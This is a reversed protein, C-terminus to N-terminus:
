SPTLDSSAVLTVQQAQRQATQLYEIFPAKPPGMIVIKSTDDQFHLELYQIPDNIQTGGDKVTLKFTKEDDQSRGVAPALFLAGLAGFFTRRMLRGNKFM